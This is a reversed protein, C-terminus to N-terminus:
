TGPNRKVADPSGQQEIAVELPSRRAQWRSARPFAAEYRMIRGEHLRVLAQNEFALISGRPLGNSSVALGGNADDGAPQASFDIFPNRVQCLLANRLVCLKTSSPSLQTVM